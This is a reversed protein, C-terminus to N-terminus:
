PHHDHEVESTVNQARGCPEIWGSQRCSLLCVEGEERGGGLGGESLLARKPWLSERSPGRVGPLAVLAALVSPDESGGRGRSEVIRGEFVESGGADGDQTGLV